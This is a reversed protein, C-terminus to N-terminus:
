SVANRIDTVYDGVPLLYQESLYGNHGYSSLDLVCIPDGACKM